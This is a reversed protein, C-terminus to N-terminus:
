RDPIGLLNGIIRWFHTIGQREDIENTLGILEPCILIYGVFSFQTLVMDRILIGEGAKEAYM